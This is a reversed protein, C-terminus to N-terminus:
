SNSEAQGNGSETIEKLGIPLPTQGEVIMPSDGTLAALEQEIADVPAEDLSEMMSDWDLNVQRVDMKKPQDLGLMERQSKLADLVVRLAAIDPASKLRVEFHDPIGSGAQQSEEVQHLIQEVMETLIKGKSHDWAEWAEKKVESYEELIAAAHEMQQDAFRKMVKKYDYVIQTRHVGLHEAIRAQTYGRRILALMTVADREREVKSRKRRTDGPM